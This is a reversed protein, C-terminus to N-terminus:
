IRLCPCMCVLELERPCTLDDFSRKGSDALLKSYESGIRRIQKSVYVTNEWLHASCCKALQVASVLSRFGANKHMDHTVRVYELLCTSLREALKALQIAELSLSVNAIPVNGFIAQLLSILRFRM